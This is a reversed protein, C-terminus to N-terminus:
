GPRSMSLSKTSLRADGQTSASVDQILGPIAEQSQHDCTVRGLVAVYRSNM